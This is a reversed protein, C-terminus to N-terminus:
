GMGASREKELTQDSQVQGDKLRIIRRSRNGVEHEHTVMIITKGAENLRDILALIEETTASDLNGTPEDALIFFPDNVLSRAIAVRQQQGGSLQTPRHKLREGLGVMEALEQCRRRDRVSLRGQYYLPVEINELVTLQPILNYSQFIFGIRSARIESLRDDSLRSVDEDGLLITGSTPRDLCGLLNLLTSKGSGSAGMIALYDGEPVELTVGRLANVVEGDMQYQKSVDQVSAALMM